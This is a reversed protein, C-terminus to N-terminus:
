KAMGYEVDVQVNKMIIHQQSSNDDIREWKSEDEGARCSALSRGGAHGLNQM